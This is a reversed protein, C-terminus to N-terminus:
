KTTVNVKITGHACSGNFTLYGTSSDYTFDKKMNVKKAKKVRKKTSDLKYGNPIVAFVKKVDSNKMKVLMQGEKEFKKTWLATESAEIPRITVTSLSKGKIAKNTTSDLGTIRKLTVTVSSGVAKSGKTKIKVLSSDIEKGDLTVSELIDSAKIKRGTYAPTTNLEIKIVHGNESISTSSVTDLKKVVLAYYENYDADATYKSSDLQLSAGPAVEPLDEDATWYDEYGGDSDLAYTKSTLGVWKVAQYGEAVAYPATVKFSGSANTTKNMSVGSATEDDIFTCKIDPEDDDDTDIGSYTGDGNDIVVYGYTTSSDYEANGGFWVNVTGEAEVEGTFVYTSLHSLTMDMVEADSSNKGAYEPLEVEEEDTDVCYAFAKGKGLDSVDEVDIDVSVDITEGDFDVEEGDATISIDFIQAEDTTPVIPYNTSISSKTGSTSEASINIAVGYSLLQEVFSQPMTIKAGDLQVITEEKEAAAELDSYDIEAETQDSYDFYETDESIIAWVKTATGTYSGMGSVTLTYSGIDTGKDSDNLIVYDTGKSLTDDGYTISSISVTQEKGTYVLNSSVLSINASQINYSSNASQITVTSEADVEAAKTDAFVGSNMTFVMSAALVLALTKKRKM